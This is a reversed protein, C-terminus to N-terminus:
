SESAGSSCPAEVVIESPGDADSKPARVFRGLVMSVENWVFMAVEDFPYLMKGKM